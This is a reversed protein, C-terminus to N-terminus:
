KELYLFGMLSIILLPIYIAINSPNFAILAVTFGVSLEMISM